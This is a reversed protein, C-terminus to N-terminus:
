GVGERIALRRCSPRWGLAILAVLVELRLERLVVVEGESVPAADRIGGRAMSTASPRRGTGGSRMEGDKGGISLHIRACGPEPEQRAAPHPSFRDDPYRTDCRPNGPRQPRSSPVSPRSAQGASVGIGARSGDGDPLHGGCNSNPPWESTPPSPPELTSRGARPTIYTPIEDCPLGNAPVTRGSRAHFM